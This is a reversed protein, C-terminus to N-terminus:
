TLRKYNPVSFVGGNFFIVESTRLGGCFYFTRWTFLIASRILKRDDSHNDTYAALCYLHADQTWRYPRISSAKNWNDWVKTRWSM